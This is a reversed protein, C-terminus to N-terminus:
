QRMHLSQRAYRAREDVGKPFCPLHSTGHLSGVRSGEGSLFWESVEARWPQCEEVRVEM